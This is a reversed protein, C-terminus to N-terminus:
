TTTSKYSSGNNTPTRHKSRTRNNLEKHGDLKAIMKNPLLSSTAKSSSDGQHRTKNQQEEERYCSNTQPTNSHYKRIM